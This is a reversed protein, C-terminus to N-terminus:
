ASTATRRRRPRRPLRPDGAPRRARGALRREAAAVGRRLRHDRGAVAGPRRDARPLRTGAGGPRVPAGRLLRAAVGAGDRRDREAEDHLLGAPDHRPRARLGPRVAPAPLAADGDRQPPQLLGPPHPLGVGAGAPGAARGPDGPRPQGCRVTWLRVGGPRRQRAGAPDGRRLRRSTTPTWGACTSAGSPPPPSWRTRGAPCGPWCPTSSAARAGGRGRRGRLGAALVAAYRHVRRAIGRLGDPGHYVAYSSAM